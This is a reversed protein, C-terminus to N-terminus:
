SPLSLHAVVARHDSGPVDFVDVRRVGVTSDVLVHDITIPPLSNGQPWTPVLGKGATAGADRYGSALLGRLPGHDLTANFDGALIRVTGRDARPMLRVDRLWGDVPPGPLPPMTHVSLVDIEHGQTRLTARAMDFTTAADLGRGGTLPYRAFLGTGSAGPQPRLARYPLVKAIGAADLRAVAEPTLEQVSVLDPRERRILEMVRRADGLGHYVNVSMVVLPAGDPSTEAVTRPVVFVAFAAVVLAAVGAQRWRRLVLAAALPLVSAAAVYPTYSLLQVLPTFL